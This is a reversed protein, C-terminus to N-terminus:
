GKKADEKEALKAFYTALVFFFGALVFSLLIGSISPGPANPIRSEYLSDLLPFVFWLVAVENCFVEMVSFFSKGVFGDSVVNWLRTAKQNIKKRWIAYAIGVIPLTAAGVILRTRM